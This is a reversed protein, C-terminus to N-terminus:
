VYHNLIKLSNKRYFWLTFLFAILWGVIPALEQFYQFFLLIFLIKFGIEIFQLIAVRRLGDTYYNVSVYLRQMISFIMVLAPIFYIYKINPINESGVWIDLLYSGLFTYGIAVFISAVLIKKELTLFALKVSSRSKKLEKSVVAQFPESLRWGLMILTNPIKWIILYIGASRSGYLYDILLIDIQLLLITSIGNLLFKSGDSIFLKHLMKKTIKKYEFLLKFHSTYYLHMSVLLIINSVALMMFIIDLSKEKVIYFTSIAGFMFLFQALFRFFAVQYQKLESILLESYPIWAFSVFVYVSFYLTSMFYDPKVFYGYLIFIFAGILGYSWNAIFSVTAISKKLYRYKILNKTMSGSLWGMGIDIISKMSYLIGFVGLATLGLYKVILPFLIFGTLMNSGM